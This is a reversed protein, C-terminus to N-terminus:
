TVTGSVVCVTGSIFLVTALGRTALNMTTRRFTVNGSTTLSTGATYTFTAANAVSTVTYTGDVGTGSTIDVAIVNGVALGHLASTVTVTTTSQSYTGGKVSMASNSGAIYATTIDRTIVANSPTNNFISVADGEAFVGDPIVISGSTGV